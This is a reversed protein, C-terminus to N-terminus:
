VVRAMRAVAEGIVEASTGINFRVWRTARRDYWEGRSVAVGQRLFAGAPDALGLDSCDLWALFTADARTPVVGPLHEALLATLLRRRDALEALVQDLWDEGVDYATTQALTALHHAGHTVVEHLGLDADPGPIALAAKLGALNWAKSGSVVAIGRAAEPVALYPTFPVHPQVLPAHIEDSVVLVGRDDAVGALAALEAPAHVTGTPNQPNCLLYASGRGAEAFARDLAELDLRHDPGLPAEVLRRRSAEVFGFFSDYCPPSLVVARDAPVRAAILEQVGIMVDPVQLARETDVEWGWRRRAFRGFAAAFPPGWAYGTDGRRLADTVVEVVEPCPAADMEAVWVPIADPGFRQWKVSTRTARLEELGAGLIESRPVRAPDPSAATVQRVSSWRVVGASGRDRPGTAM